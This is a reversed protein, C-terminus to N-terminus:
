AVILCQSLFVNIPFTDKQIEALPKDHIDWSSQMSYTVVAHILVTVLNLM